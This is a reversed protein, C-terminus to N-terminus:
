KKPVRAVFENPSNIGKKVDQEDMEGTPPKKSERHCLTGYFHAAITWTIAQDHRGTVKTRTRLM